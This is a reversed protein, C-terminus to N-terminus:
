RYDAAGVLRPQRDSTYCTQVVSRGPGQDRVGGERSSIQLNPARFLIPNSTQVCTKLCSEM